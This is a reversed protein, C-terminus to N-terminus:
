CTRATRIPRGNFRDVTVQRGDPTEGVMWLRVPEAVGAARM